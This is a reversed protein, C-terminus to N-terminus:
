NACKLARTGDKYCEIYIGIYTEIDIIEIGSTTLWRKVIKEINRNDWLAIISSITKESKIRYYTWGQNNHNWTLKGSGLVSKSGLSKWFVGDSSWECEYLTEGVGKVVLDIQAGNVGISGNVDMIDTSLLIPCLNGCNAAPQISVDIDCEAGANGDLMILVQGNTPDVPITYVTTNGGSLNLNANDNVLYSTVSGNNMQGLWVQMFDPSNGQACCCNYPTISIEYDCAITPTFSWWMSNEISGAFDSGCNGTPYVTNCDNDFNSPNNNGGVCGCKDGGCDDTFASNNGTYTIGCQTIVTATEPCDGPIQGSCLGSLFIFIAILFKKM